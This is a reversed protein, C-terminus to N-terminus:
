LESVSVKIEHDADLFGMNVNQVPEAFVFVLCGGNRRDDPFSIPTKTKQIILLNGQPECNEYKSGKRGGAGVGVGGCTVHPSGLDPDNVIVSSNLVNVKEPTGEKNFASVTLGCDVFLQEAQRPDSMAVGQQLNAFDCKGVPSCETPRSSPFVSPGPSPFSSPTRSPGSSPMQSPLTTPTGSPVTSPRDSPSISPKSSPVHTPHVSPAISPQGSPQPSPFMSPVASPSITPRFTRPRGGCYDIFAVSGTSDFCADVRIVDVVDAISSTESAIWLGNDDIDSPSSIEDSVTGDSSTM